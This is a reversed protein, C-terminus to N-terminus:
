CFGNRKLTPLVSVDFYHGNGAPGHHGQWEFQDFDAPKHINLNTSYYTDNYLIYKSNALAYPLVFTSPGWISNKDFERTLNAVIYKANKSELWTSILFLTNLAQVETWSRDEYIVLDPVKHMPMTVLGTHCDIQVSESQWTDANIHTANHRTDKFNDFVTLRVLPPIGIIFFDNEWDYQDQMGILMHCISTLCNGPWSCNVITNAGIAAATLGWFSDKPDVCFNPTTFSDGFVWLKNYQKTM